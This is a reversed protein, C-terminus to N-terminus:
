SANEENHYLPYIALTPFRRRFAGLWHGLDPILHISKCETGSEGFYACVPLGLRSSLRYAAGRIAPDNLIQSPDDLQWCRIYHKGSGEAKDIDFIARLRDPRWEPGAAWEADDAPLLGAGGSGGPLWGIKWACAYERCSQPRTPYVACGAACQSGCAAYMPKGIEHVALAVCCAQCEGCSRKGMLETMLADRKRESPPRAAPRRALRHSLVRGGLPKARHQDFAGRDNTM